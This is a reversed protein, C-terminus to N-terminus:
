KWFVETWVTASGKAPKTVTLTLAIHVIQKKEGHVIRTKHTATCSMRQKVGAFLPNKIQRNTKADFLGCALPHKAVPVNIDWFYTGTTPGSLRRLQPKPPTITQDPTRKKGTGPGDLPTAVFPLSKTFAGNGNGILLSVNGVGVAAGDANAVVIDLVGDNNFNVFSLTIPNAGVPVSDPSKYGGSSSALWTTVTGSGHNLAIVDLTNDKNLDTAVVGVPNSGAALPLMTGTFLPLGGAPTTNELAEVGNPTAVFVDMTADPTDTAGTLALDPLRITITRPSGFTGDGNGPFIDFGTTTAVAFDQLADDNLRGIVISQPDDALGPVALPQPTTFNGGGLGLAIGVDNGAPETFAIDAKGDGNFDGVVLDGGDAGTLPLVHFAFGGKDDAVGIVLGDACLIAVDVSSGDTFAEFSSPNGAATPLDLVDVANFSSGTHTVVDLANPGTTLLGITGTSGIPGVNTITGAVKPLAQFTFDQAGAVGALVLFAVAVAVTRRV